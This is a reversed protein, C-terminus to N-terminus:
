GKLAATLFSACAARAREAAGTLTTIAVPQAQAFARALIAADPLTALSEVGVDQAIGKIKKEREFAVVRSGAWAGLIVGHFRSSFLMEPHGWGAIIQALAANAYDPRRVELAKRLRRPLRPLIDEESGPLKRVEQVLWCLQRDAAAAAHLLEAVSSVKDPGPRPLICAFGTVGAEVPLRPQAALAIHSLDAAHSSRTFGMKGLAVHSAQDRTWIWQASELLLRIDPRAADARFDVSNGLFFVKKGARRCIQLQAVQDTLLWADDSPQLVSGGVGVWVDCAEILATRAGEHYAHWEVQPFRRRQAALDFPIVCTLRLGALSSGLGRIFGDMVLDDGINGAGFFMHGIHIHVM